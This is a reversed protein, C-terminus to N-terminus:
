KSKRLEELIEKIIEKTIDVNGSELLKQITILISMLGCNDDTM